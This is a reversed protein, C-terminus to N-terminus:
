IQQDLNEMTGSLVTDATEKVGKLRNDKTDMVNDRVQALRESM